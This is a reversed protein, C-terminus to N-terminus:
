TGSPKDNLFEIHHESQKWHKTRTESCVATKAKYAM